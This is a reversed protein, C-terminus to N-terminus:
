DYMSRIFNSQFSPKLQAISELADKIFKTQAETLPFFRCVDYKTFVSLFYHRTTESVAQHNRGDVVNDVGASTNKVEISQLMFQEIKTFPIEIALEYYNNEQLESARHTMEKPIGYWMFKSTTMRFKGSYDSCMVGVTNQPKTSELKTLRDPVPDLEIWVNPLDLLVNKEDILDPNEDL